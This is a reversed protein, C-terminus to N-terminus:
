SLGVQDRVRSVKQIPGPLRMRCWLRPVRVDGHPSGSDFFRESRVEKSSDSGAPPPLAAGSSPHLVPGCSYRRAPSASDSEWLIPWPFSWCSFRARLAQVVNRCVASPEGERCLRVVGRDGAITRLVRPLLDPPALTPAVVVLIRIAGATVRRARDRACSLRHEAAGTAIAHWVRVRWCDPPPRCLDTCWSCADSGQPSSATTSAAGGGSCWSSGFPWGSRIACRRAM